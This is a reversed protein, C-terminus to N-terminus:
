GPKLSFKRGTHKVEGAQLHWRAGSQNNLGLICHFPLGETTMTVPFMTKCNGLSLLTGYNKVYSGQSDAPM